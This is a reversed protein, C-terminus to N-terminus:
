QTMATKDQAVVAKSETAVPKFEVVPAQLSIHKQAEVADFELCNMRGLHEFGSVGKGVNVRVCGSSTNCGPTGLRILNLAMLDRKFKTYHVGNKACWTTVAKIAVYVRSREDENGRIVRGEVTGRVGGQDMEVTTASRRDSGDFRNTILLKGNMDAMLHSFLDEPTSQNEESTSRLRAVHRVIWDRLNNLDFNIYGRKKAFFGGVLALTALDYYFREKSADGGHMVARMKTSVNALKERVIGQNRIIWQLWEEGIVGYHNSILDDTLAKHHLGHAAYESSLKDLTALRPYTELDVEFVRAQTAAPNLNHETLHHMINRNGTIFVPVNWGPLRERETGDSKAGIRTGGNSLAYLIDSMDSSEVIYKTVEDLLFPLNGMASTRVPVGKPTSDEVTTLFAPAYLNLGIKCVTSKGYGTDDSTM